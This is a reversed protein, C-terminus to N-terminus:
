KTEQKKDFDYVAVTKGAENMIYVKGTTITRACQGFALQGEPSRHIDTAEFVTEQGGREVHKVTLM